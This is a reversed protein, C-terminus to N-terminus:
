QRAFPLTFVGSGTKGHLLYLGPALNGTHIVLRDSELQVAAPLIQGHLNLVYVSNVGTAPLGSVSLQSTCPNPYLTPASINAETLGAPFGGTSSATATNWQDGSDDNNNGNVANGAASFTVTGPTNPATWTFSFTASGSNMTMPATHTIQSAMGNIKSGTGAALTGGSVAVNFGAKANSANSVTLTLPYSQGTVYNAPVGGFVVTTAANLSGHCSGCSNGGNFKGNQDSKLTIFPISLCVLLFLQSLLLKKM